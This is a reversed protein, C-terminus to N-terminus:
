FHTNDVRNTWGKLFIKLEPKARVLLTYFLKRKNMFDTVIDGVYESIARATKPGIKGDDTVGILRQLIKISTRVGSNICMDLIQLILNADDLIELNSPKWYNNFYIDYVEDDTILKVSQIPLSKSERYTNYVKQTIGKNTAGGPDSSNNSYGGESRLVIGLCRDFLVSNSM